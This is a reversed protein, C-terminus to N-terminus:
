SPQHSQAHKEREKKTGKMQEDPNKELLNKYM